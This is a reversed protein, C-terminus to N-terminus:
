DGSESGGGAVRVCRRKENGPGLEAQVCHSTPCLLTPLRWRSWRARESAAVSLLVVCCCVSTVLERTCSYKSLRGPVEWWSFVAKGRM